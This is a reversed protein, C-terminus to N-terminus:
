LKEINFVGLDIVQGDTTVTTEKLVPVYGTKETIDESLVYVKYNGKILNKFEFSGDYSTRIRDVPASSNGYILFVEKDLAPQNYYKVQGSSKYNTELVTGKISASGEDFEVTTCRYLTDLNLTENMSLEVPVIIEKKNGFSASDNSFYYLQYQGPWLYKFSFHGSYSTKLDEGVGSQDGYILFVDLDKAPREELLLSFDSNYVKEILCGEIHSNGGTGEEQTCSFSLILVLCAFFRSLVTIQNM